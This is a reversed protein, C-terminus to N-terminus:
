RRATQPPHDAAAAVVRDLRNLTAANSGEGRWRIAGTRDLVVLTPLAQVHLAARLPCPGDTGSLLVTYNIGLKRAAAEVKLKWEAPNDEECAIGVVAVRGPGFKKQLEVLHPVADLCPKCWTGWFDLVILDADLDKLGIPRGELDPLRFDNLKGLRADFSCLSVAPKPAPQPEAGRRKSRPRAEKAAVAPGPTLAAANEAEAVVAPAPAPDVTLATEEPPKPPQKALDGWTKPAPKAAANPRPANPERAATSPAATRPLTDRGFASKSPPAMAVSRAPATATEAGAASAVAPVAPASQTVFPDAWPNYDLATPPPVNSAAEVAPAPATSPAPAPDAAPTAPPLPPVEAAPPDVAPAAPPLNPMTEGGPAPDADLHPIPADSAAALAPAPSSEPAPDRPAPGAPALTLDGAAQPEDRGPGDDLSEAAGREPRERAPPLPNPGEDGAPPLDPDSEPGSADATAPAEGTRHWASAPAERRAGAPPLKAPRERAEPDAPAESEDSVPRVRSSRPPRAQTAGATAVEPRDLHIVVGSATATADATGRLLGEGDSESEAILTYVKGSQLGSLTFAGSRDTTTAPDRGPRAPGDALRVKVQPAPNGQPDLVRGSIRVRSLTDPLISRAPAEVKQEVRYEGEGVAALVPRDGIAAISRQGSRSIGGLRGTGTASCGALWLALCPAAIRLRRRARTM